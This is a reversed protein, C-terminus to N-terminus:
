LFQTNFQLNGRELCDKGKLSDRRKKSFDKDESVKRKLNSSTLIKRQLSLAQVILIWLTMPLKREQHISPRKGLKIGLSGFYYVVFMRGVAIILSSSCLLTTRVRYKVFFSYKKRGSFKAYTSFSHNKIKQAWSLKVVGWLKRNIYQICQTFIM